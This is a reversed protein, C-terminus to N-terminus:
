PVVCVSAVNTVAWPPGGLLACFDLRGGAFPALMGAPPLFAAEARGGADLTGQSGPLVPSGARARTFDFFRDRNLPIVLGEFPTGPDTGSASGLLLYASGAERPGVNLVFPISGGDGASVDGNGAHLRALPDVEVALDPHLTVRREGAHVVIRWRGSGPDTTATVDFSHTGDGHDSVPGVTAPPPGAGLAVIELTQGGHDLPVGDLDVLRVDVRTSTVGDAVLRSAGSHVESLIHDPVGSLAARWEAYERQLVLVPDPDMGGGWNDLALYYDGNACGASVDCVGDTDGIRALVIFATHASKVFDPPPSGCSDPASIGCSCRGDGGMARAAEMGAMVRQSLDGETTLLATEAAWVPAVGALVNGQIAYLLSGVENSLGERAQGAVSGTYSVAGAMSVIGYQRGRHGFDSQSLDWLIREPSLGAHLGDWIRRRNVGTTDVSSQAAAAGEGVVVVALARRLQFHALCTASAVCVEGTARDVAVISWTALAPAGVFLAFFAFFALLATGFSASARRPLALFRM